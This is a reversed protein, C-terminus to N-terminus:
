ADAERGYRVARAARAEKWGGDVLVQRRESERLWRFALFLSVPLVVATMELLMLGGGLRQDALPSLGWMRPAGRYPAYFGHTSWLLVNSLIGGILWVVALSGLKAGTGYWRAGPLVELIASWLLLGGAYFCAHETAHIAPHALAAEYLLPVHWAYLNAAWLPLAIIPHALLRLGSAFSLALVPRLLPGSLGLVALLPALDGLMLHQLMHASFLREEGIRDVPSSVALVLVLLSSGFALQRRRDVHIRRARLTLSRRTYAIGVVAITALPLPDFTWSTLASLQEAV